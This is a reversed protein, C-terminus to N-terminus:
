AWFREIVGNYINVLWASNPEPSYYAAIKQKLKDKSLLKRVWPPALCATLMWQLYGDSADNREFSRSADSWRIPIYFLAVQVILLMCRLVQSDVIEAFYGPSIFDGNGTKWGRSIVKQKIFGTQAFCAQRSAMYLPLENDSSMDNERWPSDPHRITGLPTVFKPLEWLPNVYRNQILDALALRSTEACSDGLRGPDDAANQERILLGYNDFKM